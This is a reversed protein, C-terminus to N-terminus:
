HNITQLSVPNTVANTVSRHLVVVVLLSVFNVELKEIHKSNRASFSRPPGAETFADPM